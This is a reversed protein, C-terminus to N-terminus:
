IALRIGGYASIRPTGYGKVLEYPTDLINVLRGYLNIHRTIDYSVALNILTAASLKVESSPYVTFDMDSRQGIHTVDLNVNINKRPQYNLNISFKNRPRRLLPDGSTASNMSMDKTDTYTYSARLTVNRLPTATLYTEMGQTRAKAINQYTFLPSFQILNNIRNQFYTAGLQLRNHFLAQEVGADWGQSTEPNLNPDGFSSYLQYLTPAKFGTGYSAKFSTGTERIIYTTAARYTNYHGFRNHHDSRMGLTTVWRDWLKITDQAYFALNTASRNQFDSNYPGFFSQSRYVSNGNENQLNMGVTLTNTRHLQVHNIVDLSFLRGNYRSRESDFPHAVDFGNHTDRKTDTFSLRTIQEVRGNLLKLDSNGGILFIQSGATYNPDDGGRGGFNDLDSQARSFMSLVDLKLNQLPQYQLKSLLNTHHFGDLEHNGYRSSAASFGRVDQRTAHVFGQLKGASGGASVDEQITGYSGATVKASLTPSGEGTRTIVNIVGGISESGYLPGQPGRLVEVRDVMDPSLQDIYNFTRGPAIPDNLRVGDIMVLTHEPNAGRIFISSPSGIPGNQVVNVGPVQRLVETLSQAQMQQIQRRTVVSISGGVQEMPMTLKTTTIMLQRSSPNADSADMPPLASSSNQSEQAPPLTTDLEVPEMAIGNIPEADSGSEALAVGFGQLLLAVLGLSVILKSLAIGKLLKTLKKTL